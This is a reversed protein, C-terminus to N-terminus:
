RCARVLSVFFEFVVAIFDALFIQTHVHVAIPLLSAPAVRAPLRTPPCAHRQVCSSSVLIFHGAVELGGYVYLVTQHVIHPSSVCKNADVHVVGSFVVVIVRGLGSPPIITLLLSPTYIYIYLHGVRFFFFFFLFFSFFFPCFSFLFFRVAACIDSVWRDSLIIDLLGLSWVTQCGVIASIPTTGEKKKRLKGRFM